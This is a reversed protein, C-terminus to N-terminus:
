MAMRRSPDGESWTNPTFLRLDPGGAGARPDPQLISLPALPQNAFSLPNTPRFGGGVCVVGELSPVRLPVGAGWEQGAGKLRTYSQFLPFVPPIGWTERVFSPRLTAGVALLYPTCCPRLPSCVRLTCTYIWLPSVLLNVFTSSTPQLRDPYTRRLTLTM